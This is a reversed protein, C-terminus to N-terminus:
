TACEARLQHLMEPQKCSDVTKFAVPKGDLETVIVTGSRGGGIIDYKPLSTFSVLERQVQQPSHGHATKTRKSPPSKDDNSPSQAPQSVDSASTAM